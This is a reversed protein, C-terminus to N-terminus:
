QRLRHISERLSKFFKNREKEGTESILLSCSVLNQFNNFAKETFRKDSTSIYKIVIHNIFVTKTEAQSM